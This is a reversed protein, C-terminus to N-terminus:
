NKIKADPISIVGLVPNTITKTHVQKYSAILPLLLVEKGNSNNHGIGTKKGNQIRNVTGIVIGHPLYM